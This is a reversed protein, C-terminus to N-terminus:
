SIATEDGMVTNRDKKLSLTQHVVWHLLIILFNSSNFFFIRKTMYRQTINIFLENNYCKTAFFFKM